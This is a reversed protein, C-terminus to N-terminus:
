KGSGGGVSAARGFEEGIEAPIRVRLGGVTRGREGVPGMVVRVM